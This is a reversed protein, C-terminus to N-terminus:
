VKGGRELVEFAVTKTAKEKSWVDGAAGAAFEVESRQLSSGLM